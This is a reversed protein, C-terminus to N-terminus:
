RCWSRAPASRGSSRRDAFHPVNPLMVGVRDGVEVGKSRLLGAVRATAGDLVAYSIEVDDLKIAVNDPHEAASSTLIDALSM